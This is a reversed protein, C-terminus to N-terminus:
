TLAVYHTHGHPTCYICLCARAYPLRVLSEIRASANLIARCKEIAPEGGDVATEDGSLYSRVCDHLSDAVAAFSAVLERHLQEGAWAPFILVNVLLALVAGIAIAYLRDLGAAVPEGVRYVSVMILCYTFLIVRFGYEYPALAPLQKVFSTVAGVLFISLGIVYPEAVSGCRLSIWIVAIAVVGAVMSGVARNFGRNFSAGVTYEFMIGVTLISWIINTGFLRFPEGVLVLLSALLMALGAKLAFAVRGADESAFAWAAAAAARACRPFGGGCCSAETMAEPRKAFGPLVANPSLTVDVTVGGVASDGRSM